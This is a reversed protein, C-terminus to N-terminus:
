IFKFALYKEIFVDKFIEDEKELVDTLGLEIIYDALIEINELNRSELNGIVKKRLSRIERTSLGSNTEKILEYLKMIKELDSISIGNLKQILERQLDLIIESNARIAGLPTNIEHAVGAVMTGLTIM